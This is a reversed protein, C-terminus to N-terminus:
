LSITIWFCIDIAGLETHKFLADSAVCGYKMFAATKRQFGFDFKDSLRPHVMPMVIPQECVNARTEV